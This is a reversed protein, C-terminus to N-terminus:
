YEIKLLQKEIWFAQAAYCCNGNDNVASLICDDGMRLPHPHGNFVWPEICFDAHELGLDSPQYLQQDYGCHM